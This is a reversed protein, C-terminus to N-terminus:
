EAKVPENILKNLPFAYYITSMEELTYDQNVGITLSAERTPLFVTLYTFRPWTGAQMYLAKKGELTTSRGEGQDLSDDPNDLDLRYELFAGQDKFIVMLQPACSGASRLSASDNLKWGPPASQVALARFEALTPPWAAASAATFLVLLCALIFRRMIEM